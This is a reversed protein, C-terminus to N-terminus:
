AFKVPLVIKGIAKGSAQMQLAQPLQDWSYRMNAATRLLGSDLFGAMRKLLAGQREPEREYLARAFMMEWVLGCRKM